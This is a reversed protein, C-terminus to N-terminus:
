SFGRCTETNDADDPVGRCTETNVADDPVGFCTPPTFYVSLNFVM